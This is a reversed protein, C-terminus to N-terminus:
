SRFITVQLYFEFFFYFKGCFSSFLFIYSYVILGHRFFRAVRMAKEWLTYIVIKINTSNRSGTSYFPILIKLQGEIGRSSMTPLPTPILSVLM